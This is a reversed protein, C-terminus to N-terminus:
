QKFSFIQTRQGKTEKLIHAIKIKLDWFDDLNHRGRVTILMTLGNIGLIQIKEWMEEPQPYDNFHLPSITIDNLVSCRSMEAGHCPAAVATDRSEQRWGGTNLARQTLSRDAGASGPCCWDAEKHPWTSVTSVPSLPISWDDWWWWTPPWQGWIRHIELSIVEKDKNSQRGVFVDM